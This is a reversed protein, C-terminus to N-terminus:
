IKKKPFSEIRNDLGGPVLYEKLSGESWSGSPKGVEPIAYGEFNRDGIPPIFLVTGIVRHDYNQKEVRFRVGRWPNASIIVEAISGIPIM